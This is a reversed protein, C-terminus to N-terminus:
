PLITIALLKVRVHFNIVFFHDAIQERGMNAKEKEISQMNVLVQIAQTDIYKMKSTKPLVYFINKHLQSTEPLLGDGNLL